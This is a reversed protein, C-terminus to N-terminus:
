EKKVPQKAPESVVSAASFAVLALAITGLFYRMDARKPKTPSRGRPDIMAVHLWGLTRVGGRLDVIGAIRGRRSKGDIPTPKRRELAAHRPWYICSFNGHQYGGFGACRAEGSL